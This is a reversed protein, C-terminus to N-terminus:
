GRVRDAAHYFADFRPDNHQGPLAHVTDLGHHPLTEVTTAVAIEATILRPM